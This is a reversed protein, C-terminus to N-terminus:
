IMQTLLFSIKVSAGIEIYKTTLDFYPDTPVLIFLVDCILHLSTAFSIKISNDVPAGYVRLSGGLFEEVDSVNYDSMHM